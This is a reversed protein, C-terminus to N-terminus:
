EKPYVASATYSISGLGSIYRYYNVRDGDKEILHANRVPDDIIAECARYEAEVVTNELDTVFHSSFVHDFEDMRRCMKGLSDALANITAQKPYATDPRPGRIGARMSVINDGAFFIRNVKDLYGAHGCTHGGMHILEIEYDDGLNFIHGDDCGVIEYPRFPVIANRDFEAWIGIGSTEEFLYDWIHENQAQMGPVEFKDCYVREFQCNGYSHDFHNHTNAVIIERGGALQEVLGKLNGIGFGTDLLFAKEPGITLYMWVDGMGDASEMLFGYLNTRFQYVEVYPDIEYVKKTKNTERLLKMYAWCTEDIPERQYIRKMATQNEIPINQHGWQERPLRRNEKGEVKKHSM